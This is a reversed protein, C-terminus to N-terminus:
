VGTRRRRLCVGGLAAAWGVAGPSPLAPIDLGTVVLDSEGVAVTGNPGWLGNSERVGGNFAQVGSVGEM